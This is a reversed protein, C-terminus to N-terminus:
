KYARTSLEPEGTITIGFLAWKERAVRHNFKVVMYRCRQCNRPIYTRIPSSNSAVGFFGLGFDTFGFRGNGDALFTIQEFKPLLDTAFSVIGQTFALNEFLLQAERMHKLSVPNGGFTNPSYQVECDISKFVTFTGVVFDLEFAVTIRKAVRNVDTILVEQTTISTNESYNSFAVVNDANLKTIIANYCTQLDAFDSSQTTFTGSTGPDIVSAPVTFTNANLVTVSYENNITPNSNTASLLVRRGTILGHGNSTVVTPNAASIATITGSKDEITSEYDTFELNDSDLKVALELLKDRLNDGAFAELSSFYDSSAIGPDLDLKKLLVNFDYVTVTQYQVFVDFAEINNVSDLLITKNLYRNDLLEFNYERDAYDERSFSKREQEISNIDGSGIYMKDDASNIVGCVYGKEVTTWSNTLSNFKYGRRAATDGPKGVTFVTYSKDSEYGIGWTATSFAPYNTSALPLLDIDIPRSVNKVQSENVSSV